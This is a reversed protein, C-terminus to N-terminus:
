ITNIKDNNLDIKTFTFFFSASRYVNRKDFLGM